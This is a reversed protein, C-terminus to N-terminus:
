RWVSISGVQNNQIFNNEKAIETYIWSKKSFYIVDPL